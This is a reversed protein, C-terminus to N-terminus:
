TLSTRGVVLGYNTERFGCGAYRFAVDSMSRERKEPMLPRRECWSISSTVDFLMAFTFVIPKLDELTSNWSARLWSTVPELAGAAPL